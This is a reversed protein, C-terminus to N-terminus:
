SVRDRGTMTTRIDMPVGVVHRSKQRVEGANSLFSYITPFSAFRMLATWKWLMMGDPM